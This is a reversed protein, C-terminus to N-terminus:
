TVIDDNEHWECISWTDMKEIRHTHTNAWKWSSGYKISYFELKIKVKLKQQQSNRHMKTEAHRKNKNTQHFTCKLPISQLITFWWIVNHTQYLINVSFEIDDYLDRSLTLCKNMEMWNSNPQHFQSLFSIQKTMPWVFQDLSTSLMLHRSFHFHKMFRLKKLHWIKWLINKKERKKKSM